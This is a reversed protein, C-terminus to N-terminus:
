IANCSGSIDSSTTKEGALGKRLAGKVQEAYARYATLASQAARSGAFPRGVFL